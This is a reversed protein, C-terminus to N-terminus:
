AHHTVSWGEGTVTCGRKGAGIMGIEFVAEGAGELAASVSEALEASVILAMGVGCNFTRVMEQPAIEDGARLEAFVAPLTWRDSDVIAHARELDPFVGVERRERQRCSTDRRYSIDDCRNEESDGSRWRM